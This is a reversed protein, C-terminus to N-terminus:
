RGADLDIYARGQPDPPHHEGRLFLNAARRPVDEPAPFPAALDDRVFFANSGTLDTHVLRYGKAAALSELAGLSAGFFATGDWGGHERPQVLRRAPDLTANYEIVVLRPRYGDLAEWIWYDSGDVDISLVDPEEPVVAARFLGAVNDPTVLSPVTAVAGVPRYKAELTAFEHQGAEIFLGHWGLLDALAVCNNELGEAAGFEVFWRTGPGCRRLVEAIVGDEGNQSFARLEFPTLDRFKGAPADGGHRRALEAVALLTTRSTRRVESAAAIAQLGYKVRKRVDIQPVAALTRATV